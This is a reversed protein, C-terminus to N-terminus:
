LQHGSRADVAWVNDPITFYIVGDVLIPSSKITPPLNTQFAWALSLSSVNQRNIQTLSSHRRGSYDGHFGPWSNAPPKLLTSADVDQALLRAAGAILVCACALLFSVNKLLKMPTRLGKTSAHACNERM